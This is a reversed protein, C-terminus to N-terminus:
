KRFVSLLEAFPDQQAIYSEELSKMANMIPMIEPHNKSIGAEMLFEKLTSMFQLTDRPAFLNQIAVVFADRDSMSEVFMM